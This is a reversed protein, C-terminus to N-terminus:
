LTYTKGFIILAILNLLILHAPCTAHVSLHSIGFIKDSFRLMYPLINSNITPFHSPFTHVPNIHSPRLPNGPGTQLLVRNWPILQKIDLNDHSQNRIMEVNFIKVLNATYINYIKNILGQPRKRNM